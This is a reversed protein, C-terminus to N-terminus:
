KSSTHRLIHTGHTQKLKSLFCYFCMQNSRQELVLARVFNQESAVPWLSGLKRESWWASSFVKPWTVGHQDVQNNHYKRHYKRHHHMITCSPATQHQLQPTNKRPKRLMVVHQCENGGLKEGSIPKTWWWQCIFIGVECIADCVSTVFTCFIM